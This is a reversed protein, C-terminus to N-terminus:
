SSSGEDPRGLSQRFEEEHQDAAAGGRPGVEIGLKRLASLLIKAERQIAYEEDLMDILQPVAPAAEKGLDLIACRAEWREPGRLEEVWQDLTKGESKRLPHYVPWKKGLYDIGKSWSAGGAEVPIFRFNTHRHKRAYEMVTGTCFYYGTSSTTFLNAGNWDLLVYGWPQSHQREYTAKVDWSSRGCTSCPKTRVFGSAEEDLRAGVMKAHDLWFYAPPEVERLRKPLPSAFTVEGGVPMDGVNDAKWDDLVRKSVIFLSHRAGCGLVDPWKSGTKPDLTAQVDGTIEPPYGSGCEPCIQPNEQIGDVFREIWPYGRMDFSNHRVTYFSLSM